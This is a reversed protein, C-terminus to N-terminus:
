DEELPLRSAAELQAHRSPWWTWVIWATMVAMFIVTMAGMVWGLGAMSAGEKLVTM